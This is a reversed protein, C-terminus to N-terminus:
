AAGGTAKAIAARVNRILANVVSAQVNPYQTVEPPGLYEACEKLAELMEPAAAILRANAEEFGGDGSDDVGDCGEPDTSVVWWGNAHKPQVAFWPGPTHQASM